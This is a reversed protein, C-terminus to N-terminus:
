SEKILFELSPGHTPALFGRKIQSKPLVSILYDLNEALKEEPWSLRGIAIHINHDKDARLDTQGAEIERKKEEPRDGVTGAKPSPMLGKPGLVKAAKALKSMDAPRALLVDFDLRGSIIQGLDKEDFILVKPKKAPGHPLNIIQRFAEDGGKKKSGLAVHLEISGDFGSYSLKKVESVASKLEVQDLPRNRWAAQYKRSRSRIEIPLSKRDFIKQRPAKDRGVTKEQKATM